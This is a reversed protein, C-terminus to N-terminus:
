LLLSKGGLFCLDAEADELALPQTLSLDAEEGELALPENRKPFM